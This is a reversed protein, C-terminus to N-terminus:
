TRNERDLYFGVTEGMGIRRYYGAAEPFAMLVLGMGPGLIKKCTTILGTGIGQHQRDARVVLDAVYCVWEGDSIGRLVGVIDGSADRASVIMNSNGLPRRDAMYTTGVVAVYDAVSLSQEQAYVIASM